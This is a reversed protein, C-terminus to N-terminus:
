AGLLALETEASGVCVLHLREGEDVTHRVVLAFSAVVIGM